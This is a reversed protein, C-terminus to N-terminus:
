PRGRGGGRSPASYSGGSSGGRSPSSYSPSSSPSPSSYNRSPATSRSPASYSDSSRSPATRQQSPAAPSSSRSPTSYSDRSPRARYYDSGAPRTADTGSGRFDRGTRAPAGSVGETTRSREPRIVNADRAPRVDAPTVDGRTGGRQVDSRAPRNAPATADTSTAPDSGIARVRTGPTASTSGPAVRARSRDTNSVSAVENAMAHRPGYTVVRANRAGILSGDALGRNYAMHNMAWPNMGWPHMGMGYMGYMGGMGWPSMGWPHMGMMGMGWPNFPDYFGWPSMGMGMGMGWGSHFGMGFGMGMGYMFSIRPRVGFFARNMVFPDYFFPDYFGMPSNYFGWGSNMWMPSFNNGMYSGTGRSQAYNGDNYDERYYEEDGYADATETNQSYYDDTADAPQSEQRIDEYRASSSRSSQQTARAAQRDAATFYMDDNEVQQAVRSTTCAGLVSVTAALALNILLNTKMAKFTTKGIVIYPKKVFSVM